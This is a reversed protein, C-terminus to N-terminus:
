EDSQNMSFFTDQAIAPVSLLHNLYNLSGIAVCIRHGIIERSIIDFM